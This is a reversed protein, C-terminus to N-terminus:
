KEIGAFNVLACTKSYTDNERLIAFYCAWFEEPEGVLIHALRSVVWAMEPSAPRQGYLAALREIAFLLAKQTLPGIAAPNQDSIELVLLFLTSFTDHTDPSISM